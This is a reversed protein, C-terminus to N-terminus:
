QAIVIHWVSNHTSWLILDIWIFSSLEKPLFLQISAIIVENLGWLMEIISINTNDCIEFPFFLACHPPLRIGLTAQCTSILDFPGWSYRLYSLYSFTMHTTKSVSLFTCTKPISFLTSPEFWFIVVFPRHVLTEVRLTKPGSYSLKEKRYKPLM